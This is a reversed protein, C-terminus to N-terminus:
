LKGTAPLSLFLSTGVWALNVVAELQKEKMENFGLRSAAERVLVSLALIRLEEM